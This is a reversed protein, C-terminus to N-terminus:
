LGDICYMGPYGRLCLSQLEGYALEFGSGKIRTRSVDLVELTQRNSELIRM